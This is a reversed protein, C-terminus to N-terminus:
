QCHCASFFPLVPRPHSITSTRTQRDHYRDITGSYWYRDVLPGRPVALLLDAVM